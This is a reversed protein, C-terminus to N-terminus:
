KKFLSFIALIIEIIKDIISKVKETSDVDTINDYEENDIEGEYEDYAPRGYGSITEDDLAYFYKDVCNSTGKNGEVTIVTDKTVDVVIGTHSNNKFFIQDGVKPAKHYQGNKSYYKASQSCGAGSSNDPQCLLRKANEEGFTKVFCYDVFVDCWAYGNKKGNYFTDLNDLTYAYKTYNKDGANAENDFLNDKSKKERYGIENIASEILDKAYCKM